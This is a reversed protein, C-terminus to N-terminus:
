KYFICKGNVNIFKYKIMGVYIIIINYKVLKLVSEVNVFYM